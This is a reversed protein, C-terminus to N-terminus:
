MKDSYRGDVRFAVARSQPTHWSDNIVTVQALEVWLGFDEPLHLHFADLLLIELGVLHDSGLKQISRETQQWTMICLEWFGKLQSGPLRVHRIYVAGYICVSIYLSQGWTEKMYSSIFGDRWIQEPTRSWYLHFWFGWTKLGSGPGSSPRSEDQKGTRSHLSQLRWGVM